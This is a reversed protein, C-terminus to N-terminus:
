VSRNHKSHDIIIAYIVIIKENLVQDVLIKAHASYKIEFKYWLFDFSAFFLLFYVQLSSHVFVSLSDM